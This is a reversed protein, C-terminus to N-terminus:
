EWQHYNTLSELHVPPDLQITPITWSACVQCDRQGKALSNLKTLHQPLMHLTSKGRAKSGGQQIMQLTENINPHADSSALSHMAAFVTPDVAQALSRLNRKFHAICVRFFRRLHDYPNLDCIRRAPEYKCYNNNARCLEVCFMGLGIHINAITRLNINISVWPKDMTHMQLLPKLALTTSTTFHYQCELIKLLLQLSGGFCSLIPVLLNHPPSHECPLLLQM